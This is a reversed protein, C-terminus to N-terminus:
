PYLRQATWARHADHTMAGHADHTLARTLRFRDHMRHEGDQWFEIARPVVRYGHWHSPRPPKKEADYRRALSAIRDIFTQKDNLPRSQDSAMAALRSEYSRSAFYEDSEATTVHEVAGEIRVQRRLSKWHFLLAAHKNEALEHGKRSDSNTYFVFGQTDYDKLLVMRASPLGDRNATALCMANADNIETAQAEGFWQGFLAFPDTGQAPLNFM